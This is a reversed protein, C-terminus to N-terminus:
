WLVSIRSSGPQADVQVGCSCYMREQFCQQVLGSQLGYGFEHCHLFLQRETGSSFFNRWAFQYEPPQEATDWVLWEGIKANIFYCFLTCAHMHVREQLLQALMLLSAAGNVHMPHWPSPHKFLFTLCCRQYTRPLPYHEAFDASSSYGYRKAACSADERRWDRVVVDEETEYPFHRTPSLGVGVMCMYTGSGGIVVLVLLKWVTFLKRWEKGSCLDQERLSDTYFCWIM